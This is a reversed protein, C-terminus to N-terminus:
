PHRQRTAPNPPNPANPNPNPHKTKPTRVLGRAKTSVARSTDPCEMCMKQLGGQGDRLLGGLGDREVLALNTACACENTVTNLGQTYQLGTPTAVGTGPDQSCQMCALGDSTPAEGAGCPVCSWVGSSEQLKGGECQCSRGSPDPRQGTPCSNCTLSSIDLYEEDTCAPYPIPDYARATATLSFLLLLKRPMAPAALAGWVLARFDPSPPAFSLSRHLERGPAPM